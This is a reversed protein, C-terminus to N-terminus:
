DQSHQTSAAGSGPLETRQMEIDARKGFARVVPGLTLGQVVISFVVIIYTVTVLLDRAPSDPLSLALAVSIGGRLAGWTLLTVVGPSFSRFRRLLAIPLGASIARAILVFPIMLLGATLTPGDISLVLIELGIMVFLVANLFEDVLEWFDDLQGRTRDSMASTRGQNGLLLGAIVVTIPASIHLQEALAYAGSAVALTVLIEVQYDDIHRLMFFALGGSLLGFLAGGIAEKGFLEVAHGVSFSEGGVAIEFLVMFLVVAVGDNFLSEGTIKIELSPPAGASKLIGLVAIPDTPSILAGFLLCYILPIQFGLVTFLLWAIGGVVFTSVIVSFSALTAIVWKQQALDHLNVHLAGAFLLFSLMGHLLTADFHISDVMLRIDAELGETGPIPLLLVLSMLLAILMLGIATPMKLFRHNVWAFVASLTILVAIINFLQM